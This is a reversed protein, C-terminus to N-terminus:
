GIKQLRVHLKHGSSEEAEESWCLYEHSDSVFPVCYFLGVLWGVSVEALILSEM